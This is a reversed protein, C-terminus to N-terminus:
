KILKIRKIHINDSFVEAVYVGGTLAETNISKNTVQKENFMLQGVANYVFVSVPEATTITLKSVFPNPSITIQQQERIGAVVAPTGHKHLYFCSTNGYSYTGSGNNFCALEVVNQGNALSYIGWMSGVGAIENHLPNVTLLRRHYKSGIQVSDIGTIEVKMDTNPLRISDGLSLNFDYLMIEAATPSNFLIGYIKKNDERVALAPVDPQNAIRNTYVPMPATASQITDLYERKIIVKYTKSNIVTDRGDMIFQTYVVSASPPLGLGWNGTQNVYLWYANGTPFPRYAQSFASFSFLSFVFAFLYYKM